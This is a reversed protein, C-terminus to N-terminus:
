QGERKYGATQSFYYFMRVLQSRSINQSRKSESEFGLEKFYIYTDLYKRGFSNCIISTAKEFSIPLNREILNVQDEQIWNSNRAQEYYPETWHENLFHTRLSVKKYRHLIALFEGQSVDKDPRFFGDPYGYIIGENNAWIIYEFGWHEGPVDPYESIVKYDLGRILSQEFPITKEFREILHNELKKMRKDLPTDSILHLDESTLCNVRKIKQFLLSNM